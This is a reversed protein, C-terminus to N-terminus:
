RLAQRLHEWFSKVSAEPNIKSFHLLHITILTTRICEEYSKKPKELKIWKNEKSVISIEPGDGDLRLKWGVVDKFISQLGGDMTGRISVQQIPDEVKEDGMIIPLISFSIPTGDKDVFHYNTVSQPVVAVEEDDSSAM